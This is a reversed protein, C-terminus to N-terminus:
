GDVIGRQDALGHDARELLEVRLVLHLVEDHEDNPEARDPRRDPQEPRRFEELKLRCIQRQSQNM